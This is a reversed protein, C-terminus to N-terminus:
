LTPPMTEASRLPFPLVQMLNRFVGLSMTKKSSMGGMLGYGAAASLLARGAGEEPRERQFVDHEVLVYEAGTTRDRFKRGTTGVPEFDEVNREPWYLRAHEVREPTAMRHSDVFALHNPPLDGGLKRGYSAAGFTLNDDAM